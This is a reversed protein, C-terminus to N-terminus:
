LTMIFENLDSILPSIFYTYGNKQELGLSQDTDFKKNQIKFMM